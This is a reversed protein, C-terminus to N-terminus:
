RLIIRINIYTLILIYKNDLIFEQYIETYKQGQFFLSIYKIKNMIWSCAILNSRDRTNSVITYDYSIYLLIAVNMLYFNSAQTYLTSFDFNIFSLASMNFSLRRNHAGLMQSIIQHKWRFGPTLYVVVYVFM